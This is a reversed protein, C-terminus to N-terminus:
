KKYNFNSNSWTKAALEKCIHFDTVGWLFTLSYFAKTAHSWQTVFHYLLANFSHILSWCIFFAKCVGGGRSKAVTVQYCSKMQKPKGSLGNRWTQTLL